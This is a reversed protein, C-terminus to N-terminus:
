CETLIERFHRLEEELDDASGITRAVEERLLAAYRARLRSLHSRLTNVPMELRRAIEEQSPLAVGGCLYPKLEAFLREKAEEEFETRLRNLACNVLAAAWCQEFHRDENPTSDGSDSAYLTEIAVLEEELLVFKCDGGRKLARERDWANAMYHKLSALMFSRFKGKERDTKLYARKELFSAFFGQVLDQADTPSIVAGALSAISRRDTIVVFSISPPPALNKSSHM